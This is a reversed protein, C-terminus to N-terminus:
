LDWCFEKKMKRETYTSRYFKKGAKCPDMDIDESTKFEFKNSLLDDITYKKQKHKWTNLTANQICDGHEICNFCLILVVLFHIFNNYKFSKM